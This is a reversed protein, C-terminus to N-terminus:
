NMCKNVTYHVSTVNQEKMLYMAQLTANLYNKEFDDLQGDDGYGDETLLLKPLGYKDRSSYHNLAYFDATGRLLHFVGSLSLSLRQPSNPAYARDGFYTFLVKLLENLLNNYYALGKPELSNMVGSPALGGSATSTGFMFD